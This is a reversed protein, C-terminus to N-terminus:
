DWKQFPLGLEIARDFFNSYNTVAEKIITFPTKVIEFGNLQTPYQTKM